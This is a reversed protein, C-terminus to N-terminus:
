HLLAETTKTEISSAHQQMCYQSWWHLKNTGNLFGPVPFLSCNAKVHTISRSGRSRCVNPIYWIYENASKKGLFLLICYPLIGCLQTFYYFYVEFNNKSLCAPYRYKNQKHVSKCCKNITSNYMNLYILRAYYLNCRAHPVQLVTLVSCQTCRSCESFLYDHTADLHKVISESLETCWM